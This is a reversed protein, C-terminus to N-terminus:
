LTSQDPLGNLCFYYYIYRQIYDLGTVMAIEIHRFMYQWQQKYESSLNANHICDLRLLPKIHACSFTLQNCVRQVRSASHKSVTNSDVLLYFSSFLSVKPPKFPYDTPFHITLFFIGGQYPSDPKSSIINVILNM